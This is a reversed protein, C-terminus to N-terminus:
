QSLIMSVHSKSVGEKQSLFTKAKDSLEKQKESSTLMEIVSHSLEPADRVVTLIKLNALENAESSNSIFPGTVIGREYVLPELVNHVRKKFSGGVLVCTAVSYLEALIGVKDVILHSFSDPKQVWDSWSRVILAAKNLAEIWSDLRKETPEHPVIVLRAQPAKALIDPLGELLVQFDEDWLSAGILVPKEQFFSKWSNSSAYHRKRFVVREIRPDGLVDISIAPALSHLFDKTQQDVAAIQKLHSLSFRYLFSGTKTSPNFFAGILFCPIKKVSCQFLLEPWLERHIAIFRDPNLISLFMRVSWPFDFPSYDAFDWPCSLAAAQRRKTELHIAREASPSFYTLIIRISDDTKRLADLVPLVQEFEGASSFHFWIRKEKSRWTASALSLRTTLGLRDWLGTRVKKSFPSFIGLIALFFPYILRYLWIM